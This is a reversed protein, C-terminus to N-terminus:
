APLLKLADLMTASLPVDWQHSCRYIFGVTGSIDVLVAAPHAMRWADYSIRNYVGYSKVMSRATDFLWPFPQPNGELWRLVAEPQQTSVVIPQVGAAHYRPLDQRLQAL